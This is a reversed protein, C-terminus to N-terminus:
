VNELRLFHVRGSSEGAVITVGDPAIACCEFPAEGTFTAIEKGTELNWLKLTNDFSASIVKKGDRTLAVAGVWHSHGHFTRENEGTELNWLKLTNDFSASIVKKGDPTLAVATVRQSHGKFTREDEGTQSNRKFITGIVWKFGLLLAQLPPIKNQRLDRELNWLKLTYDYSASIVKKGDPTLAVATVRQSHGKFTREDKGTELNWLKLTKDYSASIVKKGDPTLAVATVRQSHGKFTRED